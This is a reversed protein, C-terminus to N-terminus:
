RYLNTTCRGKEVIQVNLSERERETLFSDHIAFFLLVVAFHCSCSGIATSAVAAIVALVIPCKVAVLPPYCFLCCGSWCWCSCCCCCCSPQQARQFETCSGKVPMQKLNNFLCVAYAAYGGQADRHWRGRLDWHLKRAPLKPRGFEM